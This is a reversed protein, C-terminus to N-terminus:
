RGKWRLRGVWDVWRRVGEEGMLLEVTYYRRALEEHGAFRHVFRHCAGCLWAVNELDEARHWGRKVAKDHVFRPILHHYSLPVWDRGCLECGDADLLTARPARPPTGLSSLFATLIPALFEDPGQTPESTISYTSLSDAIAPDLTPLITPTDAGTLPLRHAFRAQLTADKTYEHYDVTKLEKPLARFTETAIYDVFDVLDDANNLDTDATDQTSAPSSSTRKKSKSRRKPKPEPRSIKEILATSLCDRFIEYNRQQDEPLSTM